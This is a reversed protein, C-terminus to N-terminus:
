EYVYPPIILRKKDYLEKAIKQCLMPKTGTINKGLANELYNKDKTQCRAGLGKKIKKTIDKELGNLLKFHFCKYETEDKKNKETVVFYAGLLEVDTKVDMKPITFDDLSVEKGTNYYANYPNSFLDIFINKKPILAGTERLVKCMKPFKEQNDLLIKCYKDWTKSSIHLYFNHFRVFDDTEKEFGELTKLLIPEVVNEEKEKEEKYTNKRVIETQIEKYVKVKRLGGRNLHLYIGKIVENPYLCEKIATNLYRIDGEYDKLDKLLDDLLVFDRNKMYQIVNKKMLEIIGNEKINPPHHSNSIRAPINSPEFDVNCGVIEDDGIVIEVKRRQHDELQLPNINKFLSKSHNHINTQIICDLANKRIIDKIINKQELKKSAIEYARIDVTKEKDWLCYLYVMVNRYKLPLNIHSCRRIGRAVTQEIRNMHFWPDLVHVARINMFSIGESGKQTIIVVRIKQANINDKSNIVTLLNDLTDTNMIDTSETTIICYSSNKPDITNNKLINKGGYRGMQRHELAIALPIAGSELFRSYVISIGDSKMLTDVISGIKPAYDNINEKSLIRPSGEQYELKYHGETTAYKFVNNFGKYPYLVNLEQFGNIMNKDTPPLKGSQYKGAKVFIIGDKIQSLWEYQDDQKTAEPPSLRTAYTYPNNNDLYSIYRSSIDQIRKAVSTNIDGNTKFLDNTILPKKENVLILNLIDIIENPKDYMPTGSMLILRNNEGNKLVEMLTEYIKINEVTNKKNTTASTTESKENLDGILGKKRVNHVEDVIITKDILKMNEAEKVFENYTMIKYRTNIVREIKNPDSKTIYKYMDGTCQNNGRSPDYITKIFNNKLSAPLIVYIQPEINFSRHDSLIDEAISVAACTKGVGMAYYLLATNYPTKNSLYNTIFYQFYAKNFTAEPCEKKVIDEFEETSKLINYPSKTHVYFDQIELMKKQFHQDDIDPFGNLHKKPKKEQQQTPQSPQTPQPQTPQTPQSKSQEQKQKKEIELCLKDLDKYTKKSPDIPRGTLPNKNPNKRLEKCKNFDM